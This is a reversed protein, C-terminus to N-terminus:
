PSPSESFHLPLETVNELLSFGNRYLFDHWSNGTKSLQLSVLIQILGHHFLISQANLNQRQYFKSMKQLSRLLYFPINLNFGLFLMLLFVHHLFVMAYRVQYTIFQKLV